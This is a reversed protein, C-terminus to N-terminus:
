KKELIVHERSHLNACWRQSAQVNSCVSIDPEGFVPCGLQWHRNSSKPFKALQTTPLQVELFNSTNSHMFICENYGGLIKETHGSRIDLGSHFEWCFIEIHGQYCKKQPKAHQLM